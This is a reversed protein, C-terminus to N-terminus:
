KALRGPGLIERLDKFVEGVARPVQMRDITSM